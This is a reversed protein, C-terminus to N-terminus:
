QPTDDPTLTKNVRPNLGSFLNEDFKYRLALYWGRNTYNEAALDRDSFGRWTHGLVLMLNDIVVFGGELGTAYQKTGGQGQLLSAHTGVTWRNTIDYMLRGDVLRASYADPVGVLVEDVNKFALRGSVTWPRSPHWNARVSFINANRQTGAATTSDHESRHEYLGLADFNDRDVPRYAFGTQLWDQRQVGPLTRPRVENYYNRALWTWDRNLKAALGATSLRNVNANDGRWELRGSAKWLPSATYELGASFATATNGNAGAVRLREATTILKLGEAVMWGNRLGVAHQVERGSLADRLRYESYISADPLYQTDIGFTTLRQGGGAGLGFLGTYSRSYDHRLYLRTKDYPRYEAGASYLTQTSDSSGNTRSGDRELEGFVAFKSTIAYRVKGYLANNVTETDAGNVQQLTSGACVVPLGTNPDIQQGGNPNIGFGANYGTGAAPAAGTTCGSV